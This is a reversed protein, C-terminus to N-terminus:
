QISFTQFFNRLTELFVDTLSVSDYNVYENITESTASSQQSNNSFIRDRNASFPTPNYNHLNSSKVIVAFISDIYLIFELLTPSNKGM